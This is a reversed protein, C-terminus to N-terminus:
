YRILYLLSIEISASALYRRFRRGTLAGYLRRFAADAQRRARM